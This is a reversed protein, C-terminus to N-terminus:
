NNVTLSLSGRAKHPLMYSTSGSYAFLLDLNGNVVAASAPLVLELTTAGEALKVAWKSAAPDKVDGHSHGAGKQENFVQKTGKDFALFLRSGNMKRGGVGLAVWGATKAQISLYLMGDTGLTAGIAMGSVSTNYQYESAGLVGDPSPLSPSPSLSDQAWAAAALTLIAISAVLKLKM